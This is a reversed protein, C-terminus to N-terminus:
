IETKRKSSPCFKNYLLTDLSFKGPGTLIIVVYLFFYLLSLERATFPDGAHAIFSAVGLGILLPVAALRTFLGLILAISMFFEAFVILTLGMKSSMGLMPPFQESMEAFNSLKAWGHTLMFFGVVLRLVLLGLDRLNTSCKDDTNCFLKTM